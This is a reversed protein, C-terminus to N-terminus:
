GSFALDNPGADPTTLLYGDAAMHRRRWIEQLAEILDVRALRRKFVAEEDGGGCVLSHGPNVREEVAIAAGAAQLRMARQPRETVAQPRDATAERTMAIVVVCAKISTSVYNPM